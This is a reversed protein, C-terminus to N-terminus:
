TGAFLMGSPSTKGDNIRVDADTELSIYKKIDTVETSKCDWTIIALDGNMGVIFKDSTGEIPVILTVWTGELILFFDM